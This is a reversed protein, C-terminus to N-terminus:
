IYEITFTLHDQNLSVAASDSGGTELGNQIDISVLLDSPLSLGTVDTGPSTVWDADAARFTQETSLWANFFIVGSGIAAPGRTSRGGHNFETCKSQMSASVIGTITSGAPVGLAEFTTELRWDNIFQEKVNKGAVRSKLSGAPNGVSSDYSLVTNPGGPTAAFGQADTAFDFTVTVSGM